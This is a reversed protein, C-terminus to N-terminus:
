WSRGGCRCQCGGSRGSVRSSTSGGGFTAAPREVAATITAESTRDPDYTVEVSNSRTLTTQIVGDARQLSDAIRGANWPCNLRSLQLRTTQLQDDGNATSGNNDQSM